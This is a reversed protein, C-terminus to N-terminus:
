KLLNNLEEETKRLMETRESGELDSLIYDYAMTHKLIEAEQSLFTTLHSEDFDEGYPHSVKEKGVQMTIGKETVEYKFGGNDFKRILDIVQQQKEPSQQAAIDLLAKRREVQYMPLNPNSEKTFGKSTGINIKFNSGSTTNIVSLPNTSKIPLGIQELEAKDLREVGLGKGAGNMTSIVEGDKNSFQYDIQDTPKGDADIHQWIKVAGDIKNDKSLSVTSEIKSILGQYSADKETILYAPPRAKYKDVNTGEIVKIADKFVDSVPKGSSESDYGQLSSLQSRDNTFLDSVGQLPTTIKRIDKTIPIGSVMGLGTNVANLVGRNGERFDSYSQLGLKRFETSGIKDVLDRRLVNFMANKINESTGEDTIMLQTTYMDLTLQEADNLGEKQSKQLLVELGLPVTLERVEYKPNNTDKSVNVIEFPITKLHATIDKNVNYEKILKSQVDDIGGRINSNLTTEYKNDYFSKSLFQIVKDRNGNDNGNEDIFKIEKEKGRVNLKISKGTLDMKALTSGAEILEPTSLNGVVDKLAKIGEYHEKKSNLIDSEENLESVEGSGQNLVTKNGEKDTRDTPSNSTNNITKSADRKLQLEETRIAETVLNHRVKEEFELAKLKSDDIEVKTVEDFTYADLYSGKFQDYQMKYYAGVKGLADYSTSINANSEEISKIGKEWREIEEPTGGATINKRLEKIISNNEEIKPATYQEYSAKVDADTLNRSKYWSERQIQARGTDGIWVDLASNLKNQEIRKGSTREVFYGNGDTTEVYNAKLQEAIKHINEQLRKNYNDYEIIGGGGEYKAGVKEKALWEESSKKALAHNAESYKEPHDEFLKSWAQQESRYVKTSVVANMVNEDIVESLKGILDGAFNDQSMDLSGYQNAIEVATNLRREVYEKDVDKEVDIVSLQDYITQLKERNADVKGQKYELAKAVLQFNPTYVEQDYNHLISYANAM